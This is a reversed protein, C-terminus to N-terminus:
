QVLPVVALQCASSLWKPSFVWRSVEFMSDMNKQKKECSFDVAVNALLVNCM